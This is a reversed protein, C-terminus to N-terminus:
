LLQVDTEQQEKTEITLTGCDIYQLSKAFRHSKFTSKM